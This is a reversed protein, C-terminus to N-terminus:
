DIRKFRESIPHQIHKLLKDFYEVAYKSGCSIAHTRLIHIHETVHEYEQKKGRLFMARAEVSFFPGERYLLKDFDAISEARDLEEIDQQTM